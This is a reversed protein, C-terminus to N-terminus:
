VYTAGDNVPVLPFELYSLHFLSLPSLSESLPSLLRVAARGSSLTRRDIEINYHNGRRSTKQRPM